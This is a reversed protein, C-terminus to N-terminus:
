GADKGDKTKMIVLASLADERHYFTRAYDKNLGRKDQPYLFWIQIFWNKEQKKYIQWWLNSRVIKYEWM